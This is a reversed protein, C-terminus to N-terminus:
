RHAEYLGILRGEAGIGDELLSFSLGTGCGVDLIAEGANPDLGAVARRHFARASALRQDYTSALRRYKRKAEAADAVSALDGM